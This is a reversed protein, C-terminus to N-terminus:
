EVLMWDESLMDSQSALWGIQIQNSITKIAIASTIVPEGEYEGYGCKLADRLETGKILFIFQNKGNWGKRTVEKGRKLNSLAEGFTFTTINLEKVDCDELLQWDDAVINDLDVFIDDTETFPIVSGDKCHMTITGHEKMWYGRWHPRKIKAGQKLAEYAEKFNMRKNFNCFGDNACNKVAEDAKDGYKLCKSGTNNTCKKCEIELM